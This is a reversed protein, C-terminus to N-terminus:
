QQLALIPASTIGGSTGFVAPLPFAANNFSQEMAPAGGGFMQFLLSNAVSTVVLSAVTGGVAGYAFAAYYVTGQTLAVPATLNVTKAGTSNLRGSTSGASGLRNGGSDYIGVDCADDVSAATTVVFGIKSITQGKPCVVRILYGRNALLGGSGQAAFPGLAPAYFGPQGHDVGGAGGVSAAGVVRPTM